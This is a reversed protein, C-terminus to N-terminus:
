VWLGLSPKISSMAILLSFWALRDQCGVVCRPTASHTLPTIATVAISSPGCCEEKMQMVPKSAATPVGSHAGVPAPSMLDSWCSFTQQMWHAGADSLLIFPTRHHEVYLILNGHHFLALETCSTQVALACCILTGYLLPASM